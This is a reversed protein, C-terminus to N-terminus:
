INAPPGTSLFHTTHPVVFATFEYAKAVFSPREDFLQFFTKIFAPGGLHDLMECVIPELGNHTQAFAPVCDQQAQAKSSDQKNEHQAQAACHETQQSVAFRDLHDYAHWIGVSQAAFLLSVLSLIIFRVM